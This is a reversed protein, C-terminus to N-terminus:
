LFLDSRLKSLGGSLEIFVITLSVYAVPGWFVSFAYPVITTILVKPVANSTFGWVAWSIGMAPGVFVLPVAILGAGGRFLVPQMLRRSESLAKRGPFDGLVRASVALSFWVLFLLGPIILLVLGGLTALGTLLLALFVGWFLRRDHIWGFADTWGKPRNDLAFATLLPIAGGYYIGLIFAAVLLVLSLLGLLDPKNAQPHRAMTLLGAVFAPLSVVAAMGLFTNRNGYCIKYARAITEKIRVRDSISEGTQGGGQIGDEEAM